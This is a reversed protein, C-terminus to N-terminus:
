ACEAVFKHAKYGVLLVIQRLLFFDQTVRHIPTHLFTDLWSFLAPVTCVIKEIKDSPASKSPPIVGRTLLHDLFYPKLIDVM